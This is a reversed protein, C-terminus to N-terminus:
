TIRFNTSKTTRKDFARARIRSSVLIDYTTAIDNTINDPCGYIDKLYTSLRKYLGGTNVYNKHKEDFVHRINGRDGIILGSELKKMILKYYKSERDVM